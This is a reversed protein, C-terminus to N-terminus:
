PLEIIIMPCECAPFHRYGSGASESSRSHRFM